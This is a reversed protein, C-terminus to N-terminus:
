DECPASHTEYWMDGSNYSKGVQFDKYPYHHWELGRGPTGRVDMYIVICDKSTALWEALGLNYKKIAMNDDPYPNVQFITITTAPSAM